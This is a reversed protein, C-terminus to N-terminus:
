VSFRRTTGLPTMLPSSRRIVRADTRHSSAVVPALPSSVVPQLVARGGLRSARVAMFQDIGVVRVLRKGV